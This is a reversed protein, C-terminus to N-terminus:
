CVTEVNLSQEFLHELEIARHMATHQANVRDQARRAMQQLDESPRDLADLVDEPCRATLIEAEPTFFEELGAWTDTIIPVGCAAAEFLRGSPCYGLEAM